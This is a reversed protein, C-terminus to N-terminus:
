MAFILLCRGSNDPLFNLAVSPLLKQIYNMISNHYETGGPIASALLIFPNLFPHSFNMSDNM